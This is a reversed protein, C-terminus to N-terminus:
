SGCEAFGFRLTWPRGQGPLAQDSHQQKGEEELPPDLHGGSGDEETDQNQVEHLTLGGKRGPPAETAALSGRNRDKGRTLSPRM